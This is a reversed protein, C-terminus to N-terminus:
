AFVQWEGPTRVIVNAGTVSQSGFGQVSAVCLQGLWAIGVTGGSRCATMLSWYANNDNRGGRWASFQELKNEIDQNQVCAVNWPASDAASSPCAADSITLNQLGITIDFTREYVDSATNVMAILSDRVADENDFSATYSCDTAIGILAVRPSTPCGDLSGISERLNGTGANGGPILQRRAISGLSASNWTLEAEAEAFIPNNPGSNFALDDAPCRSAPTTDRKWEDVPLMDSDRYVVMQEENTETFHFDVDRKTQMYSSQSQIHHHDGWISFAGEMLPSAGDRKVYVRAWGVREWHGSFEEIWASGKFVKHAQRNIPESHRIKGEEDLYEIHANEGLINHNPELVLRVQQERNKLFFTFDFSSDHYVQKTDTNISPKEM